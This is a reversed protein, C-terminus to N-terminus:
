EQFKYRLKAIIGKLGNLKKGAPSSSSILNVIGSGNEVHDILEKIEDNFTKIWNKVEDMFDDKNYNNYKENEEVLFILEQIKNEYHRYDQFKNFNYM